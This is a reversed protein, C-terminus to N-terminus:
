RRRNNVETAMWGGSGCKGERRPAMRKEREVESRLKNKIEGATTLYCGKPQIEGTLERKRLALGSAIMDIRM